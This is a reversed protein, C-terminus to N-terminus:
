TLINYCPFLPNDLVTMQWGADTKYGCRFPCPVRGEIVVPLSQKRSIIPHRSSQIRSPIKEGEKEFEGEDANIRATKSKKSISPTNAGDDFMDLNHSRKKRDGLSIPSMSLFQVDLPSKIGDESDGDIKINLETETEHQRLQSALAKEISLLPSNGEVETDEQLGEKIEQASTSICHSDEDETEHGNSGKLHKPFNLELPHLM